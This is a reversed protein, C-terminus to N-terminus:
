VFNIERFIKLNCLLLQNKWVACITRWQNGGYNRMEYVVRKIVDSSTVDLLGIGLIGSISLLSGVFFWARNKLKMYFWLTFIWSNEAVYIKHSIHIGFFYCSFEKIEVSNKLFFPHRIWGDSSFHFTNLKCLKTVKVSHLLIFIQRKFVHFYFNNLEVSHLLLDPQYSVGSLYKDSLLNIWGNWHHRQFLVLHKM